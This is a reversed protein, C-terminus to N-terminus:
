DIWLISPLYFDHRLDEPRDKFVSLAPLEKNLFVDGPKIEAYTEPTFWRQLNVRRTIKNPTNPYATVVAEPLAVHLQIWGNEIMFITWRGEIHRRRRQIEVSLKKLIKAPVTGDPEIVWRGKHELWVKYLGFNKRDLTQLHMRQAERSFWGWNYGAPVDRLIVAM